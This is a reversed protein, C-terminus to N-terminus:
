RSVPRRDYFAALVQDAARLPEHVVLQRIGAADTLGIRPDGHEVYRALADGLASETLAFVRGPSGPGRALGSLTHVRATADTLHLYDLCAWAVLADPLSRKPGRNIAFQRSSNPLPRMLDLESFPSDISDEALDRGATVSGYMRLLCRADKELSSEAVGDYRQEECFRRLESLLARDNFELGRPSNFIAWWSPARCEPVSRLLYWHLLWLSGPEELYPDWDEFLQRGFASPQVNTLRSNTRHDIEEIVKYALGWYRIARVMNKGVGLITTAGPDHFVARDSGAADYAKRLWGYRPHFTEHRAFSVALRGGHRDALVTM